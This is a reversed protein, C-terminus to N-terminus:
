QKILFSFKLCSFLRIIYELFGGNDLLIVSIARYHMIWLLLLSAASKQILIFRLCECADKPPYRMVAPPLLWNKKKSIITFQWNCVLVLLFSNRQWFSQEKYNIKHERCYVKEIVANRNFRFFLIHNCATNNYNSSRPVINTILNEKLM